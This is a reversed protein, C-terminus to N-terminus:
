RGITDVEITQLQGNTQRATLKIKHVNVFHQCIEHEIQEMTRFPGATWGCNPWDCVCTGDPENHATAIFATSM